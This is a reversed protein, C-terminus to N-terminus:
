SQLTMLILDNVNTGTPGTMVLGGARTFFSYSDNRELHGEPDFESGRSWTQGDVLAGSADTPGDTGDSSAALLQVPLGRAARAFALALEQCRGGRGNGRLTVTTEGSAVVITSRRFPRDRCCMERALSALVAAVERAEGQLWTTLISAERGRQRAAELAAEAFMVNDGVIVTEFGECPTAEDRGEKLRKMVARSLRDELRHRRVVALADAFTTRDPVTPGSAIADLPSGLVDSLVLTLCKAPAIRQALRGGKVASLHKRVTNVETIDAGCALLESSTRQLDELTLGEAPAVLLASGGGSLLFLVCHDPGAQEALSLLRRTAAVGREDPVPHSAELVEIRSSSFDGVHDDKTVILGRELRDGLVDEAGRAMTAAAKGAGLLLIRGKLRDPDLHRRVADVPDVSALAERYISELM